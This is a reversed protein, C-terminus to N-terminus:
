LPETGSSRVWDPLVYEIFSGDCPLPVVVFRFWPVLPVPVIKLLVVPVNPLPM